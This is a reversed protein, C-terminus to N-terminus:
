HNQTGARHRRVDSLKRTTYKINSIYTVTFALDVVEYM